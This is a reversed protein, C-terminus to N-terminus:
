RSSSTSPINDNQRFVYQGQPVMGTRYFKLFFAMVLALAPAELLNILVYQRNALKSLLDRKFFVAM